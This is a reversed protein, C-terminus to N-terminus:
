NLPVLIREFESKVAHFTVCSEMMLISKLVGCLDACVDTSVNECCKQEVLTEIYKHVKDQVASSGQTLFAYVEESNTVGYHAFITKNEHQLLQLVTMGFSWMMHKENCVLTHSDKQSIVAAVAPHLYKATCSILMKDVECGAPYVSSLDAAKLAFTGTDWTSHKLWYHLKNSQKNQAEAESPSPFLIFNSPKLDYWVLNRNSLELCVTCLKLIMNVKWRLDCLRSHTTHQHMFDYLHHLDLLGKQLLIGHWTGGKDAMTVITSHYPQVIHPNTYEKSVTIQTPAEPNTEDHSVIPTNLITRMGLEARLERNDRNLKVIVEDIRNRTTSSHTVITGARQQQLWGIEICKKRTQSHQSLHTTGSLGWLVDDSKTESGTSILIDASNARRSEEQRLIKLLEESKNCLDFVTKLSGGVQITESLSAGSALLLRVVQVRGGKVAHMLATHGSSDALDLVTSLPESHDRALFSVVDHHGNISAWHLFTRGYKDDIVTVSIGGALLADSVEVFGYKCALQLGNFGDRSLANVVSKDLELTEKLEAVKNLRINMFYRVLLAAEDSVSASSM